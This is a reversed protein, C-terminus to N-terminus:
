SIDWWMASNIGELILLQPITEGIYMFTLTSLYVIFALSPNRRRLQPQALASATLYFGIFAGPGGRLTTLNITVPTWPAAASYCTPGM